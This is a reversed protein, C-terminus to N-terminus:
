YLRGCVLTAKPSVHPTMIQRKPKKPTSANKKPTASRKLSFTKKPSFSRQPTSTNKKPTERNKKPTSNLSRRIQINRPSRNNNNVPPLMIGTKNTERKMGPADSNIQMTLRPQITSYDSDLPFSYFDIKGRQGVQVAGCKNHLIRCYESSSFVTVGMANSFISYGDAVCQHARILLKLNSEMLFNKLVQAGFMVGSGRQSETFGAIRDDPDSWVLDAILPANDYDYIPRKIAEIEDAKKIFPSIGGHVCIISNDIIAALPMWAFLEQFDNWMQPSGYVIMIEDMFGYVQNIHMFEHNGRLLIIKEPYKNFLALLLALVPVSYPGRDVYDGLFVYRSTADNPFKTFLKLLDSCNGHIDGIVTAPASVRILTPQNKLKAVSESVLLRILDEGIDPISIDSSRRSFLDLVEDSAGM